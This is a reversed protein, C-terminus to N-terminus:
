GSGCLGGLPVRPSQGPKWLAMDGFGSEVLVAERLGWGAEEAWQLCMRGFRSLLRLVSCLREGAALAAQTPPLLARCAPAETM